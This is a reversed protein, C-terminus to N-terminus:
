TTALVGAVWIGACLAAATFEILISLLAGKLAARTSPWARDHGGLRQREALYVGLVFGILAGVVPIVFFGVVGVLAGLGLTRNPIGAAQLQRGPILFRLVQSAAAIVTVAALVGWRAGGDSVLAWVAIAAWVLLVGPLVPVVVGALGVLIALGVLLNMALTDV